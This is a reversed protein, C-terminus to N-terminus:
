KVEVGGFVCSGKIFVTPTNEDAGLPTRTGNDVGGFITSVDVVVRVNSPMIIDVGGFIAKVEITVNRQIVANKLNLDIGGFMATLDAGNFVSNDVRIDRGAFVASCILKDMDGVNQYSQSESQFARHSETSVEQVREGTGDNVVEADVFREAATAGAAAGAGASREESRDFRDTHSEVFGSNERKKKPLILNMGILVCIVALFVAWLKDGDLVGQASLLFFLGIAIGILYGVKGGDKGILGCFCPVIIFLSWWGDFFITFEPIFDLAEALYGVGIVLFLLGLVIGVFNNKKM